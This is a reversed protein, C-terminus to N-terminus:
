QQQLAYAIGGRSQVRSHRQRWQLLHLQMKQLQAVTWQQMMTVM